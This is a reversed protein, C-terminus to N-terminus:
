NYYFVGYGSRLGNKKEGEYFGRSVKEKVIKTNESFHDIFQM